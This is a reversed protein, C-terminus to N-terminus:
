WKLFLMKTCVFKIELIFDICGYLVAVAVTQTLTPAQVLRTKNYAQAAVPYLDGVSGTRPRHSHNHLMRLCDPVSRLQELGERDM